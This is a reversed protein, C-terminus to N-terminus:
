KDAGAQESGAIIEVEGVLYGVGFPGEYSLLHNRTALGAAECAVVVGALVALSRYGCEGAADVLVPDLSLLGEWDGQAFKEAVARDFVAGRPDYGAPAGPLLRHSLDGSAVYLVRAPYDLIARGVAEGFRVHEDLELYSFSLLVLRCSDQRDAMLYSLPVLAGHDLEFVEGPRATAAVPIGLAEAEDWVRRALAEDAKMDLRVQPARFYALSGRYRSALSVGMRSRALPSHPSLLVLSEPALEAAREKLATMANVTGQAEALSDGGVAPVIIPPHPTVFCGVLAM